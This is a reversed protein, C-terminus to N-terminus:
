IKRAVMAIGIGILFLPLLLSISLGPIFFLRPLIFIGGIVIFVIGVSRKGALLLLGIVILIMPWSFIFHGFNRFLHRIPYFINELHIWSLDIHLGVKRLLWIIGVFILVAAFVLRSNDKKIENDM